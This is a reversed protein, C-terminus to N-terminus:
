GVECFRSSMAQRTDHVFNDIHMQHSVSSKNPSVRFNIWDLCKACCFSRLWTAFSEGVNAAHEEFVTHFRKFCLYTEEFGLGYTMILHCGILYLSRLKSDVDDVIEFLTIANNRRYALSNAATDFEHIESLSGFCQKTSTIVQETAHSPLLFSSMSIAEFKTFSLLSHSRVVSNMPTQFRVYIKGHVHLLPM